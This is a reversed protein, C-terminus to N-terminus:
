VDYIMASSASALILEFHPIMITLLEAIFLRAHFRGTPRIFALQESIILSQTKGFLFKNRPQHKQVLRPVM